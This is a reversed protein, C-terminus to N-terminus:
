ASTAISASPKECEIFYTTGLHRREFRLVRLGSGQVLELIDRNWFCGWRCVHRNLRHGQWWAIAQWSSIGHELLLVKGGPRVCREMELLAQEPDEFSCLGFSDVVTDFSNDELPLACADMVALTVQSPDLYADPAAKKQEISLKLEAVKRAAATLMQASYDGMVLQTVYNTYFSLNRGTGAGVELVRGRAQAGMRRRLDLIGSSSEDLDIETDYRPALEEFTCCRASACPLQPKPRWMEYMVGVGACYIGAGAAYRGVRGMM